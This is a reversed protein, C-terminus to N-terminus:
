RENQAKEEEYTERAIRTAELRITGLDEPSFTQESDAIVQNIIADRRRIRGSDTFLGTNGWAEAVANGVVQSANMRFADAGERAADRFVQRYERNAQEGAEGAIYTFGDVERIRALVDDSYGLESLTIRAYSAATGMTATSIEYDM